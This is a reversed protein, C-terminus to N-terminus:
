GADRGKERRPLKFVGAARALDRAGVFARAEVFAIDGATRLLRAEGIVWQGARGMDLFDVSMHVTIATAGLGRAAINALVGDLFGALMGGHILGLDNCHRPLAFFAQRGDPSRFYPGNHNNFAGRRDTLVFGAPPQPDAPEVTM